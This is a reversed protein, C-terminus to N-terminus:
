VARDFNNHFFFAGAFFNRLMMTDFGPGGDFQAGTRALVNTAILTDNGFGAAVAITNANIGDRLTILDNGAGGAVQLSNAVQLGSIDIQDNGAGGVFFANIPVFAPLTISEQGNVRTGFVGAIVINGSTDQRTTVANSNNDGIVFLQGGSVFVSVNGNPTCRPELQECGLRARPGATDRTTLTM